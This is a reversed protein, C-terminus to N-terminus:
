ETDVLKEVRETVADITEDTLGPLAHLVRDRYMAKMSAHEDMTKASVSNMVERISVPIALEEAALLIAETITVKKNL